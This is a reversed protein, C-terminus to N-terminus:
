IAFRRRSTRVALGALGIGLLGSTAPEPVAAVSFYGSGGGGSVIPTITISYDGPALRFSGNSMGPTALCDAPDDGCDIGGTFVSTLGLPLGSSFIEFRDGSQFADTVTLVAGVPASFTWPPTGAFVTPTGSSEVCFDGAPDAPDCGAAPTGADRFSFEYFTDFSVTDAAAPAALGLAAGVIVPICARRYIFQVVRM